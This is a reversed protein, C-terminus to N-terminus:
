KYLILYINNMMINLEEHTKKRIGEVTSSSSSISENLINIMVSNLKKNNEYKIIERAQLFCNNNYYIICTINGYNTYLILENLIGGSLGAHGFTTPNVTINVTETFHHKGSSYYVGVIYEDDKLIWNKIRNELNIITNDDHISIYQKCLWDKVQAFDKILDYTPNHEYNNLDRWLFRSSKPLNFNNRIVTESVELIKEDIKLCKRLTQIETLHSSSVENILTKFETELASIKSSYKDKMNNHKIVLKKYEQEKKDSINKYYSVIVELKKIDQINRNKLVDCNNCKKEISTKTFDLFQELTDVIRGNFDITYSNDVSNYDIIKVITNHKKYLAYSGIPKINKKSNISITISKM